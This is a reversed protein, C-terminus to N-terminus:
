RRGSTRAVMHSEPRDDAEALDVVDGTGSFSDGTGFGPFRSGSACQAAESIPLLHTQNPSTHM